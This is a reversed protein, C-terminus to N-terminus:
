CVRWVVGSQCRSNLQSWGRLVDLRSFAVTAAGDAAAGARYFIDGLNRDFAGGYLEGYLPLAGRAVAGRCFSKAPARKRVGLFGADGGAGRDGRLDASGCDSAREDGLDARGARKEGAIWLRDGSISSIGAHTYGHPYDCGGLGYRLFPAEALKDRNARLPRHRGLGRSVETCLFKAPMSGGGTGCDFELFKAEHFAVCRVISCVSDLM